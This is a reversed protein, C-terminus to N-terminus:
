YVWLQGGFVSDQLELLSVAQRVPRLEPSREEVPQADTAEYSDHCCDCSLSACRPGPPIAWARVTSTVRSM